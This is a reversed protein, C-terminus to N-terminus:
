KIIKGMMRGTHNEQDIVVAGSVIVKDIGNSYQHPNEYTEAARGDRAIITQPHEMISEVNDEALCSVLTSVTGQGKLM